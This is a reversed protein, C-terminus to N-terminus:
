RYEHMKVINCNATSASLMPFFSLITKGMNFVPCQQLSNNRNDNEIDTIRNEYEWGIGPM